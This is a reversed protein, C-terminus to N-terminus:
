KKRSRILGAMWLFAAYSLLALGGWTAARGIYDGHKVYFTIDHNVNLKQKLSAEVWYPASQLIDGRQNIFGSIGTNASRAISRRTEVARLRAYEFHQRHGPTNGWWGDNTIIFLLSAGKKVYEGVFEGYISEYCIIPAVSLNKDNPAAFVSREKQSGLNGMMGGMEKFMIEQLPRAFEPLPYAEPGPVLKSKKYVPIEASTDIQFAVNYDDYFDESKGYRSVTSPLDSKLIGKFLELYSGGIIIKTKPYPQLFERLELFPPHIDKQFNWIAYPLATEPFVVYDTEESAQLQALTLLKKFQEEQTGNTFKENYPDINPQVVIIEEPNEKERYSSYITYSALIPLAVMGVPIGLAKMNASRIIEYVAVNVAIVWLSGGLAGTYEYWQVWEPYAAFGNGLTLWPWTLKWNMHLYEFMLWYAALAVYGISKGLLIRTKHAATFVWSMFLSNCLIALYAGEPTSHYIWWTTLLNWIFFALYSLIWVKHLSIKGYTQENLELAYFLPLFAIFLLLPMGAAPWALSFVIGSLAAALFPYTKNLATM